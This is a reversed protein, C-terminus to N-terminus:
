RIGPRPEDRWQPCEGERSVDLVGGHGAPGGRRARAGAVHRRRRSAMRKAGAGCRGGGGDGVCCACRLVRLAADPGVSRGALLHTLRGLLPPPPGPCLRRGRRLGEPCGGSRRMAAGSGAGAGRTDGSSAEHNAGIGHAGSAGARHPCWPKRRGQPRPGASATGGWRRSRLYPRCSTQIAQASGTSWASRDARARLFM